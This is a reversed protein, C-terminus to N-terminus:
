VMYIWEFDQSTDCESQLATLPRSTTHLSSSSSNASEPIMWSLVLPVFLNVQSKMIKHFIVERFRANRISSGPCYTSHDKIKIYPQGHMTTWHPNLSWSIDSLLINIEGKYNAWCTEPWRTGMKLLQRSLPIKWTHQLATATYATLDQQSSTQGNPLV